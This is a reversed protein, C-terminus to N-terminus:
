RYKRRVITGVGRGSCIYIYTHSLYIRARDPVAFLLWGLRPGITLQVGLSSPRCVVSEEDYLYKKWHFMKINIRFITKCGILKALAGFLDVSLIASGSALTSPWTIIDLPRPQALLVQPISPSHRDCAARFEMIWQGTGFLERKALPCAPASPVPVPVRSIAVLMDEHHHHSVRRQFDQQQPDTGSALDILRPQFYYFFSFLWFYCM